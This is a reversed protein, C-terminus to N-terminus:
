GGAAFLMNIGFFATIPKGVHAITKGPKGGNACRCM